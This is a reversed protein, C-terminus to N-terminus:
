GRPEARPQLALGHRSGSAPDAAGWARDLIMAIAKLRESWTASEDRVCHIAKEMV